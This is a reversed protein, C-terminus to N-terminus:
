RTDLRLSARCTLPISERELSLPDLVAVGPHHRSACLIHRPRYQSQSPLPYDKPELRPAGHLLSSRFEGAAQVTADPNVSTPDAPM